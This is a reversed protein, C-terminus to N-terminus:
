IRKDTRTHVFVGPMVARAEDHLGDEQVGYTGSQAQLGDDRIGGRVSTPLVM